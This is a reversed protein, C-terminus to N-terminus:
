NCHYIIEKGHLKAYDKEKHVSEGIYEGINLVYICQLINYGKQIELYYEENYWVQELVEIVRM